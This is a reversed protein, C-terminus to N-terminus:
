LWRGRGKAMLGACLGIAASAAAAVMPSTDPWLEGAVANFVSGVFILGFWVPGWRLSHQVLAAVVAEAGRPQAPNEATTM